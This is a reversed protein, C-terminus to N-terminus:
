LDNGSYSLNFSKNIIPFDSVLNRRSAIAVGTWNQFSPDRLAYRSIEGSPGTTIWHILEGRWAEVVAVSSRHAPLNPPLVACDTGSPLDGLVAELVNWSALIEERRILARCLADGGQAWSPVLPQAPFLGQEFHMRADYGSGSARAAPGVIGFEAALSASLVGVGDLREEFGPNDLVLACAEVVMPRMAALNRELDALNDDRVKRSVGGPCVFGRQFRSGSLTQGLGLAAGRLRGFTAAGVAFGVDSALAGIDGLHNAIREIELALTRTATARKPVEIELLSEVATAHGLGYAVASDLSASEVVHRTQAWPMDALRSEIGRHQYGLSIELNAIVEGLCSFRFHGPEIIGAHIPGVPIQHVGEGGVTLFHSDRRQIPGDGSQVFPPDYAGASEHLILSKWWPHGSARLGWMDGISREAFHAAPLGATISPFETEGAPLRAEVIEGSGSKPRLLLMQLLREGDAERRVTMHGFRWGSRKALKEAQQQWDSLEIQRTKVAIM